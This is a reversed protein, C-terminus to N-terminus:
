QKVWRISSCTLHIQSPFAINFNNFQYEITVNQLMCKSDFYRDNSKIWNSIRQYRILYWLRNYYFRVIASNDGTILTLSTWLITKRLLRTRKIMYLYIVIWKYFTIDKRFIPESHKYCQLSFCNTIPIPWLKSKSRNNHNCDIM